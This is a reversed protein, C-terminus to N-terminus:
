RAVATDAGGTADHRGFEVVPRVELVGAVAVGALTRATARDLVPADRRPRDNLGGAARRRAAAYGPVGAVVAGGRGIDRRHRVGFGVEGGAVHVVEADNEVRRARQLRVGAAAGVRESPQLVGVAGHQAPVVVPARPRVETNGLVDGGARVEDADRAVAAPDRAVVRQVHAECSRLRARGGRARSRYLTHGVVIRTVGPRRPGRVAPADGEMGVAVAVPLYVDHVRIAAVRPSQGVVIPAVPRRRPGRVALMDGEMGVAVAVPLYVDHVRVAAVQPPQGVM